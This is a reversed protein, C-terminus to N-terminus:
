KLLLTLIFSFVQNGIAALKITTSCNSDDQAESDSSKDKRTNSSLDSSTSVNGNCNFFQDSTDSRRENDSTLKNLSSQTTETEGLFNTSPTTTGNSSLKEENQLQKSNLENLDINSSKHLSSANSKNEVSDTNSMLPKLFSHCSDSLSLESSKSQSNDTKNTKEPSSENVIDLIMSDFEFKDESSSSFSAPSNLPSSLKPITTQSIENSQKNQSKEKAINDDDDIIVISDNSKDDVLVTEIECVSDNKIASKTRCISNEASSNKKCISQLDNQSSIIKNNVNGSEESTSSKLLTFNNSASTEPKKNATASVSDTKESNSNEDSSMEVERFEDLLGGIEDEDDSSLIVRTDLKKEDKTQTVDNKGVASEIEDGNDSLRPVSKGGEVAFDKLIGNMNDCDLSNVKADSAEENCDNNEDSADNEDDVIVFEEDMEASDSPDQSGNNQNPNGPTELVDVKGNMNKHLDAECDSNCIENESDGNMSEGVIEYISENSSCRKAKLHSDFAPSLSTNVCSKSRKAGVVSNVNIGGNDDVVLDM